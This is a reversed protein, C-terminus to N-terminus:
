KNLIKEIVSEEENKVYALYEEHQEGIIKEFEVKLCNNDSESFGIERSLNRDNQFIYILLVLKRYDQISEFMDKFYTVHDM